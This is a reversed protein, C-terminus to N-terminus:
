LTYRLKVDLYNIHSAYNKNGHSLTTQSEYSRWVREHKVHEIHPNYMKM